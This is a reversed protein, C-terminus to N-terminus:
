RRQRSRSHRRRRARLPRGFDEMLLGASPEDLWHRKPQRGWILLALLGVGAAAILLQQTQTLGGPERGGALAESILRKTTNFTDEGAKLAVKDWLRNTSLMTSWSRFNDSIVETLKPDLTYAQRQQNFDALLDEWATKLEVLTM